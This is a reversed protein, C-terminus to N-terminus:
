FNFRLALWLRRKNTLPVKGANRPMEDNSKMSNEQLGYLINPSIIRELIQSAEALIKIHM